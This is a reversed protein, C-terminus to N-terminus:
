QRNGQSMVKAVAENVWRAVDRLKDQGDVTKRREEAAQMCEQAHYAIRIRDFVVGFRREHSAVHRARASAYVEGPFDELDQYALFPIYLAPLYYTAPAETFWDGHFPQVDSVVSKQKWDMGSATQGLSYLKSPLRDPHDRWAIVDVGGDKTATALGPEFAGRPNGYGFREYARKLAPLFADGEVRPFGFSSVAGGFYGGAALCACVQFMLPLQLVEAEFQALNSIRRHRIATAVLCFTYAVQGWHLDDAFNARVTMRESDVTFPYSAKLCTARFELETFVADFLETKPEELIEQDLMEGTDPDMWEGRSGEDDAIDFVNSLDGKSSIRRVSLIARLELWDALVTRKDNATPALLM